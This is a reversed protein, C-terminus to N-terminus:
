AKQWHSQCHLTKGLGPIDEILVHGEALLGVLLLERAHEKGVIVRSMNEM